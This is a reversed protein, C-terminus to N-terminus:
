DQSHLLAIKHDEIKKKWGENEDCEIIDSDDEAYYLINRFSGETNFLETLTTKGETPLQLLKDLLRYLVSIANRVEDREKKEEKENKTPDPKSYKGRNLLPLKQVAAVAELICKDIKKDGSPYNDLLSTVHQSLKQFQKLNQNADFLNNQLQHNHKEMIDIRSALDQMATIIRLRRELDDPILPLKGASEEM